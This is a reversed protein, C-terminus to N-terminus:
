AYHQVPWGAQLAPLSMAMVPSSVIAHSGHNSCARQVDKSMQMILGDNYMGRTSISHKNALWAGVKCLSM